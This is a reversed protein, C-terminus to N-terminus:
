KTESQGCFEADFVTAGDEEGSSGNAPEEDLFESFAMRYAREYEELPTLKRAAPQPQSQPSCRDGNRLWNGIFRAMDTYNKGNEDLWMLAHSSERWVYEDGYETRWMTICKRLDAPKARPVAERIKAELRAAFDGTLVDAKVGKDIYEDNRDHTIKKDKPDPARVAIAERECDSNLLINDIRNQRSKQSTQTEAANRKAKRKAAIRQRDRERKEQAKFFLRGSYENWNHIVYGNESVELFGTNVLTDAFEEARSLDFEAALALSEPTLELKGDPANEMAYAWMFYMHGAFAVPSIGLRRYALKTKTNSPFSTQIIVYRGPMPDIKKM